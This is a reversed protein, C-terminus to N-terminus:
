AFAPVMETQVAEDAVLVFHCPLLPRINVPRGLASRAIRAIEPESFSSHIRAVADHRCVASRVLLRSAVNVLACNLRSRKFDCVIMARQCSVQMSQLLRFAQSDDLRHMLMTSIVVDFGHPLPSQFCDLQISRVEVASRKALRQQEEIAHRNTDVTTIRIDRRDRAAKVAWRVALDGNGSSVDLVTLPRGGAASSQYRTILPYLADAVRTVQNLRLEDMRVRQFEAADLSPDDIWVPERVRDFSM